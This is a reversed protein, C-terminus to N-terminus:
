GRHLSTIHEEVERRRTGHSRLQRQVGAAQAPRVTNQTVFRYVHIESRWQGVRRVRAVAQKEYAM